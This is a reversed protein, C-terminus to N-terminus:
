RQRARRFTELIASLIGLVGLIILGPTIWRTAAEPWGTAAIFAPNIVHHADALWILLIAPVMQVLAGILATPLSWKTYYRAFSFGLSAVVLVVYVYVIGTDWLWPDFLPIPQGTRDLEIRFIPSLLILTSFVVTALSEAILEGLRVRRSPPAPLSDPSWPQNHLRLDTGTRELVAFALTVWVVIHVATTLTTGVTKGIITGVPDNAFAGIVAIVAAVIPLVTALLATLVRIYDVYLAPGILYLPRDAYGAALRAPEGLETLVSKEAVGPEDGAAIRDDVADAISARLEREIDQRQHGPLRRLTAEVYRDTLTNM